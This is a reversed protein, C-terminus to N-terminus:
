FSQARVQFLQNEDRGIQVKGSVAKAHAAPRQPLPDKKLGQSYKSIMDMFLCHVPGSVSPLGEPTCCSDCYPRGLTLWM